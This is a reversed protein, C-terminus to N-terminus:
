FVDLGYRSVARAATLAYVTRAGGTLLSESAAMLTAGTTAVDDLLLVKKNAILRPNARFADRVNDKREQVTLGV